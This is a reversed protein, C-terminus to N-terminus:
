FNFIQLLTPKMRNPFMKCIKLNVNQSVIDLLFYYCKRLDQICVSSNSRKFDTLNQLTKQFFDRIHEDLIWIPQM